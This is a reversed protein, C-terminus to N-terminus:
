APAHHRLEATVEVVVRDDSLEVQRVGKIVEEDRDWIVVEREGDPDDSKLKAILETTTMSGGADGVSGSINRPTMAALTVAALPVVQARARYSCCDSPNSATGLCFHRGGAGFAQHEPDRTVDFTDPNEYRDEDRNSSPYWM